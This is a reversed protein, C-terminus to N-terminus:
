RCAPRAALSSTSVRACSSSASISARAAIQPVLFSAEIFSAIQEVQSQLQDVLFFSFVVGHLAHQFFLVGVSRCRWASSLCVSAASRSDKCRM